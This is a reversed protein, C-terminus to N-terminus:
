LHEQISRFHKSIVASNHRTAPFEPTFMASRVRSLVQTCAPAFLQAVRFHLDFKADATTAHFTARSFVAIRDCFKKRM